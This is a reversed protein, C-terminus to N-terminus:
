RFLLFMMFGSVLFVVTVKIGAGEVDDQLYGLNKTNSDILIKTKRLEEQLKLQNKQLEAIDSKLKFEDLFDSPSKGSKIFLDQLVARAEPNTNITELVDKFFPSSASREELVLLVGWFFVDNLSVGTYVSILFAIIFLM